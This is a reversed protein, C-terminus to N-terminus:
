FMNLLYWVIISLINRNYWQSCILYKGLVVTKYYRKPDFIDVGNEVLVSFSIGLNQSCYKQNKLNIFYEKNREGDIFDKWEM